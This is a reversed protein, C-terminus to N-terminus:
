WSWGEGIHSSYNQEYDNEKRLCIEKDKYYITTLTFFTLDHINNGCISVSAEYFQSGSIKINENYSMIHGSVKNLFYVDDYCYVFSGPNIPQLFLTKKYVFIEEGNRIVQNYIDVTNKEKSCSIGDFIMRKKTNLVEILKIMENEDIFRCGFDFFAKPYYDSKNLLSSELLKNLDSLIEEFSCMENMILFLKGEIARMKINM